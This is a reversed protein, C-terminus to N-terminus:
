EAGPQHLGAAFWGPWVSLSLWLSIVDAHTFWPHNLPQGNLKASQIYKNQASSAPALITFKKGNELNITVKKFIPSCMTYVTLRPTVPYFGM